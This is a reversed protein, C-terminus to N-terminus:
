TGQQLQPAIRSPERRNKISSGGFSCVSHHGVIENAMTQMLSDLGHHAVDASRACAKRERCRSSFLRRKLGSRMGVACVAGPPFTRLHNRSFCAGSMRSHDLAYKLLMRNLRPVHDLTAVAMLFTGKGDLGCM